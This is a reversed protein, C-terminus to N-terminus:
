PADPGLVRLTLLTGSGDSDLGPLYRVRVPLDQRGCVLELERRDDPGDVFFSRASPAELALMGQDVALTFRLSGDARCGVAVLRGVAEGTVAVFGEVQSLLHDCLFRYAPDRASERGRQLVGRAAVLDHRKAYLSALVVALDPRGPDRAFARRLLAIRRTLPEPALRALMEAAEALDPARALAKELSAVAEAEPSPAGGRAKAEDLLLRAHRLLAAPEDPNAALALRLEERAKAWRRERRLLEALGAHAPACAPDAAVAREFLPRADGFRSEHLLLDGLLSDVESEAPVDTVLPSEGGSSAPVPVSFLPGPSVDLLGAEIAALDGFRRSFANVPDDGEAVAALFDRLGDRTHRSVVLRVLAESEAYFVDRRSADSLLPSDAAAALLEALPIRPDRRLVEVRNPRAAGLRAESGDLDGGSLVEALGESVWLPQAPLSRNLQLHAVEHDLTAWSRREGSLSSRLHFVVYVRDTGGQFFGEVEGGEPPVFSEFAHADGFALVCIPGEDEEGEAAPLLIELVELLRELRRASARASAEGADSLFEAHPSRVRIWREAPPASAPGVAVALVAVLVSRPGM